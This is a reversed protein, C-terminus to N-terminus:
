DTKVDTLTKVTLHNKLYNANFPTKSYFNIIKMKSSMLFGNQSFHGVIDSHLSFDLWVFLAINNTEITIDYVYDPMFNHPGRIGKLSVISKNIGISDRIPTLLLYNNSRMNYAINHASVEILCESRNLCNGSFILNSILEEFVIESSISNTFVNVNMQFSPEMQSWKRVMVNVTFHLGGEYDDRILAVKLKTNEEFPVILLPKFIDKIFYHSMKWKGGFEISSWTPAVWVDNLQWYLAGMTFGEGNHPNVGRNRRYFETEIKLSMAQSIQSLYIFDDLRDAGGSIPLKLYKEISQIIENNGNTRHQRDSM